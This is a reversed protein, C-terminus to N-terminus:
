RIQSDRIQGISTVTQIVGGISLRKKWKAITAEFTQNDEKLKKARKRHASVQTWAKITWTPSFDGLFPLLEIAFAIISGVIRKWSVSAVYESLGKVLNKGAEKATRSLVQQAKSEQPTINQSRRSLKAMSLMTKTQYAKMSLLYGGIYIYYLTSFIVDTAIAFFDVGFSGILSIIQIGPILNFVFLIFGLLDWLIAGGLNLYVWFGSLPKM